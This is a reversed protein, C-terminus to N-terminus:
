FMYSLVSCSILTILPRNRAVALIGTDTIKRCFSVNINRLLPCSHTLASIRKDSIREFQDPRIMTTINRCCNLFGELGGDTMYNCRGVDISILQRCSRGLAM